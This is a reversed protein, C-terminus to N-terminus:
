HKRTSALTGGLSHGIMHPKAGKAIATIM